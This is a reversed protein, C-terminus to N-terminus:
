PTSGRKDPAILSLAVSILLCVAIVELISEALLGMAMGLLAFGVM